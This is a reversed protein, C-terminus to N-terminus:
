SPSSSNAECANKASDWITTGLEKAKVFFQSAETIAVRKVAYWRASRLAEINNTDSIAQKEKDKLRNQETVGNEFMSIILRKLNQNEQPNVAVKEELIAFLEALHWFKNQVIFTGALQCLSQSSASFDLSENNFLKSLNDTALKRIERRALWDIGFKAGTGVTGVFVFFKAASLAKDWSNGESKEASLPAGSGIYGGSLQLGILCSVVIKKMKISM